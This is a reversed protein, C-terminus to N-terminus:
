TKKLAAYYEDSEKTYNYKKSAAIHADFQTMGSDILEKELIEHNLMTLDHPKPNGNILRQWSQAMVFSLYFRRLTGAGLDHKDFFIIRQIIEESFGTNKFILM